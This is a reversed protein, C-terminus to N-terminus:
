ASAEKLEDSLVGFIVDGVVAWWDFAGNDLAKCYDHVIKPILARIREETLGYQDQLKEIEMEIYDEVDMTNYIEQQENFAARLEDATLEFALQRGEVTRTITM